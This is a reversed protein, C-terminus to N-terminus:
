RWPVIAKVRRYLSSKKKEVPLYAGSTHFSLSESFCAGFIEHGRRQKSKRMNELTVDSFLTPRRRRRPFSFHLSANPLCGLANVWLWPSSAPSSSSDPRCHTKALASTDSRAQRPSRCYPAEGAKSQLSFVLAKFRQWSAPRGGGSAFLQGFCTRPEVPPEFGSSTEGVKRSMALYANTKTPRRTSEVQVTSGKDVGPSTKKKKKAMKSM